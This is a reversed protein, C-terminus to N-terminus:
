TCFAPRIRVPLFQQLRNFFLSLHHNSTDVKRASKQLSQRRKDISFFTSVVVKHTAQIGWQNQRFKNIIWPDSFVYKSKSRYVDLRALVCMKIDFIAAHHASLQHGAWWISRIKPNTFRSEALSRAVYGAASDNLFNGSAAGRISNTIIGTFVLSNILFINRGKNCQRQISATVTKEQLRAPNAEPTSTLSRSM